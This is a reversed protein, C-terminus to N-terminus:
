VQSGLGLRAAAEVKEALDTTDGNSQDRSFFMAEVGKERVKWVQKDELDGKDEM